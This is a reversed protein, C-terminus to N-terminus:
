KSGNDWMTLQNSKPFLEKNTSLYWTNFGTLECHNKVVEYLLGQKELDRKYLYISNQQVGTTETVMSASTTHLMMFLIIAKNQLQKDKAQRFYNANLSQKYITSM